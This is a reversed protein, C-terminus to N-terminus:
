GLSVRYLRGTTVCPDPTVRAATSLLSRPEDHRRGTRPDADAPLPLLHLQDVGWTAIRDRRQAVPIDAFNDPFFTTRRGTLASHRGVETSTVITLTGDSRCRRLEQEVVGGTLSDPDPPVTTLQHGLAWGAPLTLLLVGVAHGTRRGTLRAPVPARLILVVATLLTLLVALSLYRRSLYGTSLESFAVQATFAALAALGVLLWRPGHRLPRRGRRLLLGAAVTTAVVTPAWVAAKAAQLVAAPANGVLRALWGIPDDAATPLQDVDIVDTVYLQPVALAIIRNDAPFPTGFHVLGYVAWPSMVLTFVLGAPLLWRWDRRRIVVLLVALLLVAPLTDPRPLVLGGGTVGVLIPWLPGCGM